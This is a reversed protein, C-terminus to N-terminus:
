IRPPTRITFVENGCVAGMGLLCADLDVYKHIKKKKFFSSGNFVHLFKAFWTLDRYFGSDLKIKNTSTHDRLVKLMRNLFFRSYRVCKTIYLLSGLLSQLQHKTSVIAWSLCMQKIQQFTESPIRLLFKETDM